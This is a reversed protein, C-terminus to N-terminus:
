FFTRRQEHWATQTVPLVLTDRGISPQLVVEMHKLRDHRSLLLAETVTYFARGESPDSVWRSQGAYYLKTHIDRLLVMMEASEPQSPM